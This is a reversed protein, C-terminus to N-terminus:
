RSPRRRRRCTTSSGSDPRPTRRRTTCRGAAARPPRSRGSPSTHRAGRLDELVAAVDGSVEPEVLARQRCVSTVSRRQSSSVRRQITEVLRPSRMRARKTMMALPGSCRGFSGPCGPRRSRRAAVREVGAAPVVGVGAAGAVPCRSLSCSLTTPMMPVPAVATCHTGWRPAAACAGRRTGACARTSRRARCGAWRDPTPQRAELRAPLAAPHVVEVVQDGADELGLVQHVVAPGVDDALQEQAQAPPSAVAAPELM